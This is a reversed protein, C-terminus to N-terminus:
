VVSGEALQLEANILIAVMEEFSTKPKWGTKERLLSSDGLRSPSSRSLLDPDSVVYERYDLRLLSFALSVFERVSHGNGTAVIFDRPADTQLVKHIADVYDPAYGWDVIADIDGLRLKGSGTRYINVASQVIKRTVFRPSRLPSEHNYLIGSSAFVNREARYFRCVMMGAVKSIAYPNAPNLASRETQIEGQSNGFILSSSAYFLRSSPSHEAIASLFNILGSVHTNFSKGFVTVDDPVQDESSHHYAALYYIEAPQSDSVLTSVANTNLIDINHRTLGIVTYGLGLLHSHLLQGDQGGSGVIIAVRNTM